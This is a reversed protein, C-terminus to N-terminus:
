EGESSDRYSIKTVEERFAVRLEFGGYYGNHINHTVLTIFGKDTGIEVAVAQHFDGAETEETSMPRAEIRLLTQGVLSQLDDDDTQLFRQECCQQADDWIALRGERLRLWLTNNLLCASLIEAGKWRPDTEGLRSPATVIGSAKENRDIIAELDMM